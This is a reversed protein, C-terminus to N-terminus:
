CTLPSTTELEFPSKAFDVTMHLPQQKANSRTPRVRLKAYDHEERRMKLGLPRAPLLLAIPVVPWSHTDCTTSRPRAITWPLINTRSDRRLRLLYCETDIAPARDRM